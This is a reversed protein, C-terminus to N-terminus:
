NRNPVGKVIEAQSGKLVRGGHQAIRRVYDVTLGTYEKLDKVKDIFQYITWSRATKGVRGLIAIGKGAKGTGGGIPADM